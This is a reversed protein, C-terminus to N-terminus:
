GLTMVARRAGRLVRHVGRADDGGPAGGHDALAAGAGWESHLWETCSRLWAPSPVPLPSAGYVIPDDAVSGSTGNMYVEPEPAPTEEQTEM